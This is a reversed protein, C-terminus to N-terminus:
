KVLCPMRSHIFSDLILLKWDNGESGCAPERHTMWWLPWNTKCLLCCCLNITLDFQRLFWDCNGYIVMIKAGKYMFSPFSATGIQLVFSIHTPSEWETTLAANKRHSARM